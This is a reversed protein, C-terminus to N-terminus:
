LLLKLLCYPLAYTKARQTAMDGDMWEHMRGHMWRTRQNFKVWIRKNCPTPHHQGDKKSMSKVRVM